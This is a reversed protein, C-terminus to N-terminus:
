DIKLPETYAQKPQFELHFHQNGPSEDYILDFDSGVIGRGEKLKERAVDNTWKPMVFDIAAGVYHLSNHMHKGNIVSTVIMTENRWQELLIM